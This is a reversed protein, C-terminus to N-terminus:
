RRTPTPRSTTSSTSPRPGGPRISTRPTSGASAASPASGTPSRSPTRSRRGRRTTTSPSSRRPRARRGGARHRPGRRLGDRQRAGGRARARRQPRARRRPERRRPHRRAPRRRHGAADPRRRRAVRRDDVGRGAPVAAPQLHRAPRPDDGRLRQVDEPAPRRALPGARRPRLLADVVTRARLSRPDDADGLAALLRGIKADVSRTCTPTSACTTSSSPARACRGLYSTQGLKLMAHATPKDRLDEDVTAPLDVRCTPSSSAATAAAECLVLPLRARRAPEGALRDPLVARAPRGRRPLARGPAHLGRRLGGDLRGRQRRRVRRSRHERRRGPPEWGPFGFDRELRETDAPGWNGHGALPM